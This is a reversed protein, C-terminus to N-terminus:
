SLSAHKTFNEFLLFAHKTFLLSGHQTFNAHKIFNAFYYFSEPCLHMNCSFNCNEPCRHLNQLTKYYYYYFHMNQSYCLSMNHLTKPPCTKYLRMFLIDKLFFICTKYLLTFHIVIFKLFSTCTQFFEHLILYNKFHFFFKVITATFCYNLNCLFSFIRNTSVSRLHSYKCQSVRHWFNYTADYLPKHSAGYM